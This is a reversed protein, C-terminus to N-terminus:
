LATATATITDSKAGSADYPVVVKIDIRMTDTADIFQLNSCALRSANVDAYPTIKIDGGACGGDASSVLWKYSPSTGGIFATANEKLSSLEVSVNVNGKNELTLGTSELAWNSNGISGGADTYLTASANGADVSGAGWAIADDTFEIDTLATVSLSATGTDTTAYGVVAPGNNMAYYSFGAAALSAIVAFVAIILVSDNEAM